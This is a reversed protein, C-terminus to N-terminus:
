TRATRTRKKASVTWASDDVAAHRARDGEVEEQLRVSAEDARGTGRLADSTRELEACASRM